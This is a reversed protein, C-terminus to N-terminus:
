KELIILAILTIQTIVVTWDLPLRANKPVHFSPRFLEDVEIEVPKSMALAANIEETTLSRKSIVPYVITSVRKAPVRSDPRQEATQDPISFESLQSDTNPNTHQKHPSSSTSLALTRKDHTSRPGFLPQDPESDQEDTELGSEDIAALVLKPRTEDASTEDGSTNVISGAATTLGSGSVSASPIVNDQEETEPEEFEIIDTLNGLESTYSSM